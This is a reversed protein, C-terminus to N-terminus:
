FTIMNAEGKIGKLAENNQRLYAIMGNILTFIHGYDKLAKVSTNFIISAFNM